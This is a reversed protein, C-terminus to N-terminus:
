SGAQATATLFRQASLLSSGGPPLWLSSSMGGACEWRSDRLRPAWRGQTCRKAASRRGTYRFPASPNVWGRMRGYGIAPRIILGKVDSM